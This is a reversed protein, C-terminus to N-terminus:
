LIMIVLKSTLFFSVYPKNIKITLTCKKLHENQFLRMPWVKNQSLTIEIFINKMSIKM